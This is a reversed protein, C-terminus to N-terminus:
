ERSNLNKCTMLNTYCTDPFGSNQQCYARAAIAADDRHMYTNSPWAKAMQDLAVCRWMPRTSQGNVFMECSEKATKCSAPLSSQKKCEDFSKNLAALAYSSNAAWEHHGADSATCRWYNGAFDATEAWLGTTVFFGFFLVTILQNM